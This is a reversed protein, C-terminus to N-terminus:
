PRLLNMAAKDRAEHRFDLASLPGALRPVGPRRTLWGDAARLPHVGIAGADGHVLDRGEPRGEGRLDGERELWAEAGEERDHPDAPDHAQDRQRPHGDQRKCRREQDQGRRRRGVRGPRADHRRRDRGAGSCCEGEEDSRGGRSDTTGVRPGRSSVGSPTGAPGLPAITTGAFRAVSRPRLRRLRQWARRRMTPPGRRAVTLSHVNRYTKCGPATDLLPGAQGSRSRGPIMTRAKRWGGTYGAQVPVLVPEFWRWLLFPMGFILCM